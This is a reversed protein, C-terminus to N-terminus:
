GGVASGRATAPDAAAEALIWERFAQVAKRERAEPPYVLFYGFALELSLPFPRVLRGRDLDDGVLSIPALAVGEGAIALQLLVAEDDIVPGRRAEVASAGATTLWQAWDEYDEEHLLVHHGLDDLSKLPFAGELLRPSCVPVLDVRMLPEAVLGPWDGRGYRIALDVDDEEFSVLDLSHHLRLEIEPHRKLFRPLRAALWKSSFASTLSVTVKPSDVRKQLAGVAAAIREFAASVATLLSRGDATLSVKRISRRFLTVGLEEELLRIQHSVAAQTVHLEEAAKTFSLNRGAAEFARLATLPPLRM